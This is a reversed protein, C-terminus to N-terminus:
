YLTQGKGNTADHAGDVELHVDALFFVRLAVAHDHSVVALEQGIFLPLGRLERIAPVQATGAGKSDHGDRQESARRRLGCRSNVHVCSTARRNSL